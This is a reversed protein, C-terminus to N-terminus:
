NKKILKSIMFIISNREIEHFKKQKSHKLKNNSKQDWKKLIFFFLISLCFILDKDTIKIM